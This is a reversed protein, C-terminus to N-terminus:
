KGHLPGGKNTMQLIKINKEYTKPNLFYWLNLLLECKDVEDIRSDTITDICLDRILKLSESNM